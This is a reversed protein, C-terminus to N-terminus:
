GVCVACSTAQINWFYFFAIKKEITTTEYAVCFTANIIILVLYQPNKSYEISM